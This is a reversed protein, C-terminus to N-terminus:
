IFSKILKILLQSCNKLAHKKDNLYKTKCRFLLKVDTNYTLQNVFYDDKYVMGNM